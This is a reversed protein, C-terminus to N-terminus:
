RYTMLIWGVGFVCVGAVLFQLVAGPSIANNLQMLMALPLVVLGVLQLFRGFSRM